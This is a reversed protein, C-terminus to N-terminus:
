GCLGRFGVVSSDPFCVCDAPVDAHDVREDSETVKKLIGDCALTGNYDAVLFRLRLEGCGPIDIEIM